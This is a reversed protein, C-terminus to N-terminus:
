YYKYQKKSKKGLIDFFLKSNNKLEMGSEEEFISRYKRYINDPQKQGNIKLYKGTLEINNLEGPILMGDSNLAKDLIDSLRNSGDTKPEVFNKEEEDPWIFSGQSDRDMEPFTFNFFSSGDGQNLNGFHKRLEALREELDGFDFDGFDFIGGNLGQFLSDSLLNDSGFNFRFSRTNGDDSFFGNNDKPHNGGPMYDGIIDQYKDYDAKDIKQGDVELNTVEGNDIAIKVSKGNAFKQIRISEQQGGFMSEPVTDMETIFSSEGPSDTSLLAHTSRNNAFGVTMVLILLMGIGLIIGTKKAQNNSKM